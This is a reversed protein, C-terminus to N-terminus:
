QIDGEELEFTEAGNMLANQILAYAAMAQRDTPFARHYLVNVADIMIVNGSVFFSVPDIITAHIMGKEDTDSDFCASIIM